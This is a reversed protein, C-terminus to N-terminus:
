NIRSHSSEAGGGGGRALADGDRARTQGMEGSPPTAAHVNSASGNALGAAKLNDRRDSKAHLKALFQM